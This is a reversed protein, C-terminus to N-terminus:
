VLGEELRARWRPFGDVFESGIQEHRVSWFTYDFTNAHRYAQRGTANLQEVESKVLRLHEALTGSDRPLSWIYTAHSDLLELVFHHMGQGRVFFFFGFNPTLVFRLKQGREHRDALYTLQRANRVSGDRLIEELLERGPPPLLARVPDDDVSREWLEEPTFLTKDPEDQRLFQRLTRARLVDILRGDIRAIQKSAVGALFPDGRDDFRLEATIEATNRRLARAFYGRITDFEKVSVSNRIRFPLDPLEPSTYTGSLYGDSFILETIPLTFRLQRVVLDKGPPAPTTRAPGPREDEKTLISTLPLRGAEYYSLQSCFATRNLPAFHVQDVPARPSRDPRYDEAEAEFDTVELFLTATNKDYGTMVAEWYFDERERLRFADPPLNTRSWPIIVTATLHLFEPTPRFVIKPAM